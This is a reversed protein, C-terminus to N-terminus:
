PQTEFKELDPNMHDWPQASSTWLDGTPQYPSPDDLSSATIVIIDPAASEKVCLPSGCRNCFGRSVTNGSDAKVDYFKPEGALLKWAAIPIVMDTSYASGTARQCDRCHCNVSMVPDASCEYRIAGCACGGAYSNSM